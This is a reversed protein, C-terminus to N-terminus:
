LAVLLRCEDLHRNAVTSVASGTQRVLFSAFEDRYCFALHRRLKVHVSTGVLNGAPDDDHKVDEISPLDTNSCNNAYSFPAAPRQPSPSARTQCLLLAPM